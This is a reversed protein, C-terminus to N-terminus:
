RPMRPGSTRTASRRAAPIGAPRSSSSASGPICTGGAEGISGTPTMPRWWPRQERAAPRRGFRGGSAPPRGTSGSSPGRGALISVHHLWLDAVVPRAGMTSGSRRGPRPWRATASCSTSRAEALVGVQGADFHCADAVVAARRGEGSRGAATSRVHMAAMRGRGASPGVRRFLCRRVTLQTDETRLADADRDESEVVFELGELTLRGGRVDLVARGSTGSGDPERAARLVPRVGTRGQDDPGAPPLARANPSRGARRRAHLPRGRGPDGGFRSAGLGPGGAPGRGFDVSIDRPSPPSTPRNPSRGESAGAANARRRASADPGHDAERAPGAVELPRRAVSTPTPEDQGWWTLTAVVLGFALAPIGWVLHREWAPPPTAAMWVLGEPNLSRLGLAGAVILLDRVLQEPTQYRRDRDKAM